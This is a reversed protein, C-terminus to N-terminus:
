ALSWRQTPAQRYAIRDLAMGVAATVQSEVRSLLLNDGDRLRWSVRGIRLMEDAEDRRAPGVADYLRAEMEARGVGAQAEAARTNRPDADALELLTHVLLDPRDLLRETGYMVDMFRAALADFADVFAPGGSLERVPEWARSRLAPDAGALAARAESVALRLQSDERLTAALDAMARNRRTALMDESKLLGTFEYPDDPRVADTYYRALQRM